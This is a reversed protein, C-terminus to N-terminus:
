QILYEDGVITAVTGRPSGIIAETIARNKNKSGILKLVIIPPANHKLPIM